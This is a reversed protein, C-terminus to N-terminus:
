LQDDPICSRTSSHKLFWLHNHYQRPDQRGKHGRGNVHAGEHKTM